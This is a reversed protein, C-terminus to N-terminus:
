RAIEDFRFLHNMFIEHFAFDGEAKLTEHPEFLYVFNEEWKKVGLWWVPKTKKTFFDSRMLQVYMHTTNRGTSM